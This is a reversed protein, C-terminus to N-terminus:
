TFDMMSACLPRMLTSLTRPLPLVKTTSTGSAEQAWFGAGVGNEIQCIDFFPCIKRNEPFYNGNIQTNEL